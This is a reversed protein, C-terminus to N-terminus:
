VIIFIKILDKFFNIISFKKSRFVKIFFADLFFLIFIPLLTGIFIIRVGVGFGIVIGILTSFYNRKIELHQTQLYRIIFYTAWVNSFAIITDKPNISMHGFFIPNFFSIVFIIKSVKKNFITKSIKAIGVITYFSFLLNILHHMQIEYKIPIMQSIFATLTDYFGPFHSSNITVFPSIYEYRGLSFLYKLRNKGLDYHYPEDWSMGLILSCYLSFVVLFFIILNESKKEM